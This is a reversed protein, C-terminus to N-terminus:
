RAEIQSARTFRYYARRAEPDAVFGSVTFGSALGFRFHRRTADRWRAALTADSDAVNEIDWPVEVLMTTPLPGGPVAAGSASLTLIPVDEASSTSRSPAVVPEPGTMVVLRDTAIGLHLPSTTVGYMDDVYEVVRAALHNINLHANRSQLPDFTWAIRHVGRSALEARQRKKLARGIGAGRAHASVALMHSWHLAGQADAGSLGFVFGVLTGGADYAGVALGGIKAAVLLLSAPVTELDGGWTSKQMSVCERFEAIVTLVRLTVSPVAAHAHLWPTPAALSVRDHPVM